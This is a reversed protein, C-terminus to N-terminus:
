SRKEKTKLSWKTLYVVLQDNEKSGVFGIGKSYYSTSVSGDALSTLKIAICDKFTRLPTKLEANVEVIKFKWLQDKSVWQKSLRIDGPIEIGEKLSENDLYYLTGYEARYYNIEIKGDSYTRVSPFYRKKEYELMEGSICEEYTEVETKYVWCNGPELFFYQPQPGQHTLILLLGYILSIKM